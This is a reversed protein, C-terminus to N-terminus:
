NCQKVKEQGVYQGYSGYVAQMVYWCHRQVYVPTSYFGNPQYGYSGSSGAGSVIASGIVGLALGGLFAGNNGNAASAGTSISALAATVIAAAALKKTFNFM